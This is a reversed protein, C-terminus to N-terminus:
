NMVRRYRDVVREVDQLGVGVGDMVVYQMALEKVRNLMKHAPFQAQELDLNDM